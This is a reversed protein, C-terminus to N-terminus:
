NNVVLKLKRFVFENCGLGGACTKLRRLTFGLDRFFHFVEEPKAVEFPYGGIWDVVDHWASMGRSRKYNQWSKLPNGGMSDKFVTLTWQRLLTYTALPKRMWPYRNYLRKLIKWRKTPSGQDNYISVFLTGGNCVLPAISALAEWMAGTHHLVGWSYVVDYQGLRSLYESDLVSAEEILWAADGPFYRRKLEKTCAVSQPDYDFSHVQAGLRRAALSFLGSGSGVDLFKKGHLNDVELMTKLSREAELIREENLIFLFRKWNAGFEFREGQQVQTEFNNM